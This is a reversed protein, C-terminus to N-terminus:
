AKPLAASLRTQLTEFQSKLTELFLRASAGLVRGSPEIATYDVGARPAVIPNLKRRGSGIDGSGIDGSVIISPVITMWDTEAVFELTALMADMEIIAAIGVGNAAFFTELRERRANGHTPLVLKLPPMDALRLPELHVLPSHRGSVLLERDSGFHSSRIGSRERGAPVIAFDYEGRAVADSLTPSYAEIITADVSPYRDIFGALAPALLSYTFAPILGVRVRGSVEGALGALESETQSMARLMATARRYLREGAQTPVVGKPTREFVSLGIAAELNGVQMSLGSQTANERRAARNFSGEEYVAVFARIQRFNLTM